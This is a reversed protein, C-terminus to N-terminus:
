EVRQKWGPDKSEIARLENMKKKNLLEQIQGRERETMRSAM